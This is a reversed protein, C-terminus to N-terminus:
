NSHPWRFVFYFDSLTEEKLLVSIESLLLLVEEGKQYIHGLVLRSSCFTPLGYFNSTLWGVISLGWSLFRRETARFFYFDTM